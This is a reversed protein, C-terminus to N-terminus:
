ENSIEVKLVFNDFVQSIYLYDGYRIATSAASILKGDDSFLVEKEGTEGDFQYIVSPSFNESKKVHRLFALSNLHAAVIYKDKYRTINDGGIVETLEKKDISHYDKLTFKFITNQRVTSVYLYPDNFYIGNAYSLENDIYYPKQNKPFYVVSSRKLKLAQEIFNHRKGADNTIFFSGDNLAFIDNPSNFLSNYFAAEFVLTKGLIKYRVIPHLDKEEDHSIVFLRPISDIMVLDFGHPHFVLSPPEQLREFAFVSDTKLDIWYIGNTLSDSARRTACSVLLRPNNASTLTDLVIDEPGFGTTIKQTEFPGSKPISNCSTLFFSIISLTIISIRVKM